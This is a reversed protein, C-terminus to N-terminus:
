SNIITRMFSVTRQDDSSAFAGELNLPQTVSSNRDDVRLHTDILVYISNVVM